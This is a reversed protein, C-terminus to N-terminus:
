FLPRPSSAQPQAAYVAMVAKVEGEVVLLDEVPAATVNRSGLPVWKLRPVYLPVPHNGLRGSAGVVVQWGYQEDSVLVRAELEVVLSLFSWLRWVESVQM